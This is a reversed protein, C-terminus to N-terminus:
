NSKGCLKQPAFCFRGVAYSIPLYALGLDCASFWLPSPLRLVNAIGGVFFFAGVCLACFLKTNKNSTFYVAILSGVLTGLAHALFPFLFHKPEFLPLAAVLGEMTTVDTGEPPAIISGSVMILSLNVASGIVLGGLISFFVTVYEMM